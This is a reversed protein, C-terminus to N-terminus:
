PKIADAVKSFTAQVDTGVTTMIAIAVVSILALILVYEVLGQGKREASLWVMMRVYIEVLKEM